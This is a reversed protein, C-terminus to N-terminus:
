AVVALTNLVRTLATRGTSAGTFEVHFSRSFKISKEVSKECRGPSM